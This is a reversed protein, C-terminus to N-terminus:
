GQKEKQLAALLDRLETEDMELLMEEASAPESLTREFDRFDEDLPLPEPIPAPSKVPMLLVLAAAAAMAVPVLWM